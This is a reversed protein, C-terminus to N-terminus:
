ALHEDILESLQEATLIGSHMELVEGDPSLFLTTPMGIGGAEIWIEQGPQFVTDFTVGTEEILARWSTEDFDHSVGVFTVQDEYDEHVAQFDPLEARCPPCWAAFFNVVLPQGDYVALTATQGDATTFAHANLGSGGTATETSGAAEASQEDSGDSGGPAGFLFLAVLGAAVAAGVWILVNPRTRPEVPDSTPSPTPNDLAENAM